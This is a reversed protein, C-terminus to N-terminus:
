ARRCRRWLSIALSSNRLGPLSRASRRTPSRNAQERSYHDQRYTMM